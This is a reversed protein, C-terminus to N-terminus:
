FLKLNLKLIWRELVYWEKEIGIMIIEFVERM